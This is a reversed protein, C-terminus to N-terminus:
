AGGAGEREAEARSERLLDRLEALASDIVKIHRLPDTRYYGIERIFNLLASTLQARQAIPAQHLLGLATGADMQMERTTGFTRRTMRRALRDLVAHLNELISCPIQAENAM